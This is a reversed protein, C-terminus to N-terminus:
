PILIYYSAHDVTVEFSGLVSNNDGQNNTMVTLKGKDSEAIMQKLEAGRFTGFVRPAAQDIARDAERRETRSM